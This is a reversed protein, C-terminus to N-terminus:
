SERKKPFYLYFYYVAVSVFPTQFLSRAINYDIKLGLMQWLGPLGYLSPFIPAFLWVSLGPDFFFVLGFFSTLAITVLPYHKLKSIVLDIILFPILWLFWQPHYHTFTFFLLLILFFKTWLYRASSKRYLFILFFFLLFAPFLLIAEGGSIPIKAYLSKVTQGALLATKRFGLSNIFPLISAIYVLLGVSIIKIRDLWREKLFALPFLFMLPFIKFAGGLGLLLAEKILSKSPKKKVLYLVLVVFFTPIIDFSAIMYISYLGVPNFLWLILGIIKNRDKEFFKFLLFATAFDFIFYPIKLFLLLLNLQWHGLTDSFNYIFNHYVLPDVMWTTLQSFGGLFFYVMPPFNFLDRPYVKLEAADPPLNWLYDYFSLIEGKKIIRGAFDFPQIDSHFTFLSIAIRLIFAIIVIKIIKRKM